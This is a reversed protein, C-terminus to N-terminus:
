AAAETVARYLGHGVRILLGEECMYTMYCRPVGIQQLEKSTVTGKARALELAKMRLTKKKNRLAEERKRAAEAAKQQQLAIKPLLFAFSFKDSEVSGALWNPVLGRGQTATELVGGSAM